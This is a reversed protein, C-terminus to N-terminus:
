LEIIQDFFSKDNVKHIVMIFTKNKYKNKLNRLVQYETDKDLANTAEDFFIIEADSYLARAISLRQREGGSLKTGAEGIHTNLGKPLNEILRNLQCIELIENLRNMDIDEPKNMFCINNKLTDNFLYFNQHVFSITNKLRLPKNIIKNGDVVIESESPILLGSLIDILTTKGSGSPGVICNFTGKKIKFNKKYEIKRTAEPYNFTIKNVEILEEFNLLKAPNTDTKKLELYDIINNELKKSYNIANLARSIRTFSPIMRFIILIYIGITPIYNIISKNFNNFFIYFLICFLFVILFEIIYRPLSELFFFKRDVLSLSKTVKNVDNIFLDEKRFIKVDKIAQFIQQLIKHRELDKELRQKGIEPLKKKISKIILYCISCLVIFVLFIKSSILLSFFILGTIIFLETIILITPAVITDFYYKVEDSTFRVLDSSNSNLHFIYPMSLFNKLIKDTVKNRYNYLFNSYYKVTFITLLFKFFFYFLVFFLYINLLKLKENIYFSEKLYKFFFNKEIILNENDFNIGFDILPMLVAFGLAELFTLLTLLFILFYIKKYSHFKLILKISKM